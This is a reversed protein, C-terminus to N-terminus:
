SDGADQRRGFTPLDVGTMRGPRCDDECQDVVSRPDGAIASLRAWSPRDRAKLVARCVAPRSSAQALDGNAAHWLVSRRSRPRRHPANRISARAPAVAPRDRREGIQTRV